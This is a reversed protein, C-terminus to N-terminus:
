SNLAMHVGTFDFFDSVEMEQAERLLFTDSDPYELQKEIAYWNEAIFQYVEDKPVERAVLRTFFDEPRHEEPTYPGMFSSELYRTGPDTVDALKELERQYYRVSHSPLDPQELMQLARQKQRFLQERPLAAFMRLFNAAAEEPSTALTRIRGFYNMDNGGYPLTYVKLGARDIFSRLADM